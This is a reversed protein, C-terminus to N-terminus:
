GPLERGRDVNVQNQAVTEAMFSSLLIKTSVGINSVIVVNLVSNANFFNIIGGDYNVPDM